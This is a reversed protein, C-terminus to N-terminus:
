PRSRGQAALEAVRATLRKVIEPHAAYLNNTEGPDDALNYLQGPPEGPEPRRRAPKTFGGSGLFPILKWDGQRISLNKVGQGILLENRAPEALKEGLLEPLFSFSDEGAGDPLAAGTLAAFTALLDTFCILDKSTAGAKIKGPWRAIFPERHGGEWVDGKMGRLNAAAAHAYKKVDAPYWVPGNDSSFFVLTNNTLGDRDLAALVQGVSDDLQAVWAAYLNGMSQARFAETPLWPTHPATLALYLFFPKGPSRGRADLYDVAKRTYTPLVNGLKLGPAIGGARWFAGQIPSWGPSSGAEIHDTPAAVCHDNEIFFYPPIDLSAHQGFFYDFGHDFPGGRLPQSCDFQDGGEFGLHWKGLMATAYGRERLLSAITMRSSEILPGKSPDMSSNRFPYRGTLLGYRSPVCVPGAAHADTFRMGQTALRDIHPTPCKSQSNFCLPDGYGMDDALIFVINPRASEAALAAPFLPLAGLMLLALAKLNGLWQFDAARLKGIMQFLGLSALCDILFPKM